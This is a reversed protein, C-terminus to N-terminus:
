CHNTVHSNTAIDFYHKVLKEKVLEKLLTPSVLHGTRGDSDLVIAHKGFRKKFSVAKALFIASKASIAVPSLKGEVTPTAIMQHDEFWVPLDKEDAQRIMEAHEASINVSRLLDERHKGLYAAWSNQALEAEFAAQMTVLMTQPTGTSQVQSTRFDENPMYGNRELYAQIKLRPM